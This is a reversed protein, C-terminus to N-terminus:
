YLTLTAPCQCVAIVAMQVLKPPLRGPEGFLLGQTDTDVPGEYGTWATLQELTMGLCASVNDLFVGDRNHIATGALYHRMFDVFGMETHIQRPDTQFLYEAKDAADNFHIVTKTM